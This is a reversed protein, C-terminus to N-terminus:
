LSTNTEIWKEIVENSEKLEFYEKVREAVISPEYNCVRAIKYIYDEIEKVRSNLPNKSEARKNREKIQVRILNSTRQYFYGKTNKEFYNNMLFARIQTIGRHIGTLEEIRQQAEKYTRVRTHKFDDAILDVYTQLDSVNTVPLRKLFSPDKRYTEIYNYITRKELQMINAIEDVNMGKSFLLVAQCINKIRPRNFSHKSVIEDRHYLDIYWGQYIGSYLAETYESLKIPKLKKM